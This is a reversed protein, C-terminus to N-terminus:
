RQVAHRPFSRGLRSSETVGCYPSSSPHQHRCCLPARAPAMCVSACVRIARAASVHMPVSGCLWYAHLWADWAGSGSGGMRQGEGRTCLHRGTVCAAHQAHGRSCSPLERPDDYTALYGALQEIHHHILSAAPEGVRHVGRRSLQITCLAQLEARQRQTVLAPLHTTPPLACSPPTCNGM